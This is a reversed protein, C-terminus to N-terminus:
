AEQVPQVKLPPLHLYRTTRRKADIDKFVREAQAETLGVAPAVERAPVRHDHAYLCLDMAEYPLAFFFEEQTQPM